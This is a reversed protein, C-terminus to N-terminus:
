GWYSALLWAPSEQEPKLGLVELAHALRTDADEQLALLAAPDVTKPYGRAATITHAALIYHPVRDSCHDVIEVGLGGPIREDAATHFDIPDGEEDEAEPDWWDPGSEWDDPDGLDYGYALIADTSTGM